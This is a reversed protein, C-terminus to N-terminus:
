CAEMRGGLEHETIRVRKRYIRFWRYLATCKRTINKLLKRKM